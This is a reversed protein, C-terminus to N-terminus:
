TTLFTSQSVQSSYFLSLFSEQPSFRLSVYNEMFQGSFFYEGEKLNLIKDLLYSNWNFGTEHDKTWIAKLMALKSYSDLNIDRKDEFTRRNDFGPPSNEAKKPTSSKRKLLPEYVGTKFYAGTECHKVQVGEMGFGLGQKAKNSVVSPSSSKMSDSSSSSTNHDDKTPTAFNTRQSQVLDDLAAFSKVIQDIFDITSDQWKEFSAYFDPSYASRVKQLGESQNNAYDKIIIWANTIRTFVFIFDKVAWAVGQSNINAVVNDPRLLDQKLRACLSDIKKFCPRKQHGLAINEGMDCGQLAIRTLEHMHDKMNTVDYGIGPRTDHSATPPAPYFNNKGSNALLNLQANM